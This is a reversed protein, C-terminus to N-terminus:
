QGLRIRSNRASQTGTRSSSQPPHVLHFALWTAVLVVFAIVSGEPGVSGGTLWRPGHFSSNLLHGQALFGSDAVSYFFTESFDFAAHMGIALWISGTRMLTFSALVGFLGAMLAGVWAEGPNSLHGAGFIASLLLAAPWFGMGGTLTAQMYGRFTFEEFFGVLLFGAGYLAGNRFIESGHLALTGFSFGGLAAILLALATMMCFGWVAGEAMREPIRGGGLGYDRLSRKEILTMLLAALLAALVLLGEQLLLGGPTMTQGQGARLADHVVPIRNAVWGILFGILVTAVCFILVRWGARMGNQGWFITKFRNRRPGQPAGTAFEGPMVEDAQDGDATSMEQNEREFSVSSTYEGPQSSLM